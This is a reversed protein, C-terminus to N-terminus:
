DDTRRKYTRFYSTFASLPWVDIYSTKSRISFWRNRTACTAEKSTVSTARSQSSMAHDPFTVKLLGKKFAVVYGLVPTSAPDIGPSTTQSWRHLYRQPTHSPVIPIGSGHETRLGPCRRCAGSPLTCSGLHTHFLPLGAGRAMHSMGIEVLIVQTVMTLRALGFAVASGGGVNLTFDM